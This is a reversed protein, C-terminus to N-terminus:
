RKGDCIHEGPQTKQSELDCQSSSGFTTPSELTKDDYPSIPDVMSSQDMAISTRSFLAREITFLFFSVIEGLLTVIAGVEYIVITCGAEPLSIIVSQHREGSIPRM